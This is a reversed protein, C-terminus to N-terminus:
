VLRSRDLSFGFHSVKHFRRSHYNRGVGAQIMGNLLQNTVM